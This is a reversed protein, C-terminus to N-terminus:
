FYYRVWIEPRFRDPKEGFETQADGIPVGIRGNIELNTVPTWTLGPQLNLSHDHLNVVASVWTTLYLIELPEKQSIKAYLYDKGPNRQRDPSPLFIRSDDYGAGNHYYEAIFTTDHANLYRLGLLGSVQNETTQSVTSDATYDTTPADKQFALEGHVALNEALNKAFDLGLSLPHDPGNFFIFDIDTDHWLLYLKLATNVDGHQGFDTNFWDDAVPLVLATIGFNNLAGHTVSKIFDIGALTRGELNLSPDDPDKPRNLFGAPNWAYGTGWLVPKKGADLTINPAPSWSLYAEYIDNDWTDQEFTRTYAHRTLVRAQFSSRRWAASLEAAAQGDHTNAGPDTGAYLRGYGTTQDDLRHWTYRATIRGGFSWAAPEAEPIAFDYESAGAPFPPLGWLMLCIILVSVRRSLKPCLNSFGGSLDQTM